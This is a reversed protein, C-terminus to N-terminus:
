SIMSFRDSEHQIAFQELDTISMPRALAFGQLYDCGIETLIRAHDMTEVGEATVAIEMIKAMGAIQEFMGRAQKSEHIPFILRRDVKMVDPSLEMIGVVSTHGSGFDDIEISVGYERLRDIEFRFEDSQEEVIVSELVEIAIPPSDSDLSRVARSAEGSILRQATVNFAIKPISIGSKKLNTVQQAAKRFIIRDLEEMLSLQEIVPFFTGPALLGMEPSAWRALVEVGSIEFTKADFQPQYYPVFEDRAIANRIAIALERREVSHRHLAPTYIRVTNRGGEKADYLAADAGALLDEPKLLGGATSAIGFSAGIKVSRNEFVLPQQIRKLLRESLETAAATTSNPSLLILFEDGGVRAPLDPQRDTPSSRVEEQLIKAVECLVFDGAAHGMNDNVYKFRDLDLHIITSNEFGYATRAALATDLARRNPLGTLPDHLAQYEIEKKSALLAERQKRSETIDNSIAMYGYIEGEDNALGAISIAVWYKDGKRSYNVLEAKIPEGKSIAQRLKAVTEPDTEPGQLFSSPKTNRVMEIPYGTLREFAPNCWIIRQQLDTVLIADNALKAVSALELLERKQAELKRHPAVLFAHGFFAFLGFASFLVLTIAGGANILVARGAAEVVARDPTISVYLNTGAVPALTVDSLTEAGREALDEATIIQTSRVIDIEPILTNIDLYVWGVLAGEIYGKNRVPTALLIHVTSGVNHMIVQNAHAEKEEIVNQVLAEITAPPFIAEHGKLIQQGAIREAFIDYLGIWSLNAPLAAGTVYETLVNSNTVYGMSVSIIDKQSGMFALIQRDQALVNEVVRAHEQAQEQIVRNQFNTLFPTTAIWVAWGSAGIALLMISM